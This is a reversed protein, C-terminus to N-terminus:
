VQTSTWRSGSDMLMSSGGETRRPSSPKLIQSQHRRSSMSLTPKENITPVINSGTLQSDFAAASPVFARQQLHQQLLSSSQRLPHAGHQGVPFDGGAGMGFDRLYIDLMKPELGGFLSGADMGADIGMGSFKPIFAQTDMQRGKNMFGSIGFGEFGMDPMRQLSGYGDFSGPPAMGGRMGIEGLDVDPMKFDGFLPVGGFPKGIERGGLDMDQVLKMGMMPDMLPFSAMPHGLGMHVVDGKPQEKDRYFAELMHVNVQVEHRGRKLDLCLIESTQQAEECKAKVVDHTLNEVNEGNIGM